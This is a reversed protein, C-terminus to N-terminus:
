CRKTKFFNKEEKISVEEARHEVYDKKPLNIYITQKNTLKQMGLLEKAEKEINNINLSNQISIELQDNEKQIATVEAKLSQIKSFSESIESNRFLVLFLIAFLLVSKWIIGFKAKALAKKQKKMLEEYLYGSFALVNVYYIHRIKSLLEALGETQEFPEGGTLTIGGVEYTELVTRVLNWAVDVDMRQSGNREWLEPNACGDCHRSCGATWLAIRKGPGLATVPYLIRDIYLVGM